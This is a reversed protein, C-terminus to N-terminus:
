FRILWSRYLAAILDSQTVIGALQQKEDVVPMNHWGKDSLLTILETLPTNFSVTIVNKTMIDKLRRNRLYRLRHFRSSPAELEFYHLLDVLTIIGVLRQYQDVVPLANLRYTKLLTWAEEILMDPQGTRLDRSMIAGATINNTRRKFTHSETLRLLEELDERRVDVYTGFEELAKDLDEENFSTRASPVPDATDRVSEQPPAIPRPYPTGTLNNFIMALCLLILSQSAVPILVAFGLAHLTPDLTVALAIACSPPHLCRLSLMCTIASCVVIASRVVPDNIYLAAIVGISASILNGALMSWPHALPTASTIFLLVASAGLPPVLSFAIDTGFLYHTCFVCLLVGLFAGAAARLWQKAPINLSLPTFAKIWARM